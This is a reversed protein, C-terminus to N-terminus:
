MRFLREAGRAVSGRLLCLACPVDEGTMWFRLLQQGRAHAADRQQVRHGALRFASAPSPLIRTHARTLCQALFFSSRDGCPGGIARFSHEFQGLGVIWRVTAWAIRDGSGAGEGTALKVDSFFDAAAEGCAARRTAGVWRCSGGGSGCSLRRGDSVHARVRQTGCRIRGLGDAQGIRVPWLGHALLDSPLEADHRRLNSRCQSLKRRHTLVSGPRPRRADPMRPAIM